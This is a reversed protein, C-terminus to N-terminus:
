QVVAAAMSPPSAAPLTAFAIASSVPINPMTSGLADQKHSLMGKLVHQAEQMKQSNLAQSLPVQSVARRGEGTTVFTTASALRTPPSTPRLRRIPPASSGRPTVLPKSGNAIISQPIQHGPEEQQSTPSLMTRFLERAEQEPRLTRTFDVPLQTSKSLSTQAGSPHLPRIAVDSMPLPLAGYMGTTQPTFPAPLPHTSIVPKLPTKAVYPWSRDDRVAMPEMSITSAPQLLHSPLPLMYGPPSLM